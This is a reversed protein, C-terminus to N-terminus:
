DDGPKEEPAQEDNTRERRIPRRPKGMGDAAGIMQEIEDNRDSRMESLTRSMDLLRETLMTIEYERVRMQADFRAEAAKRLKERSEARDEETASASNIESRYVRMAEVFGLGSRMEDLKLRGFARDEEFARMVEEVMPALRGMLRDAIAGDQKSLARMKEDLEPIHEGIFARIADMRERPPEELPRDGRAPQEPRRAESQRGHQWDMRMARLVSAPSEGDNLRELAARNRALQEEGREISIELRARISESSNERADSESMGGPAAPPPAHEAPQGFAAGSCISGIMMGILARRM